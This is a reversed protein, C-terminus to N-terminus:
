WLRAMRDRVDACVDDVPRAWVQPNLVEVEVPGTFGTADIRALLAPLPIVGDGPLGRGTLLSPTPVLWDAVHVAAIRGAAQQLGATLAPDWWVHYTDVAIGLAPEAFEAVLRNAQDLTVIASREALFMPHFPEVALTIGADRAAPLIRELGRLIATEAAAIDGGLAPGCVLVLIPSGLLVAEEIARLNDDHAEPVPRTGTFFGGRCLSSVRLGEERVAAATKGPDHELFKHRWLSVQEIGSARCAALFATTETTEATAPNLSLQDPRM